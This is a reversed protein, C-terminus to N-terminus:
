PEKGSIKMLYPPNRNICSSLFFQFECFSVFPINAYLFVLVCDKYSVKIWQSKKEFSISHLSDMDNWFPFSLVMQYSSVFM